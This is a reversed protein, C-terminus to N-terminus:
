LKNQNLEVDELINRLLKVKIGKSQVTAITTAANTATHAYPMKPKKLM